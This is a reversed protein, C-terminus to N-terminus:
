QGSILISDEAGINRVVMSKIISLAAGAAAMAAAGFVPLLRDWALIDISPIAAALSVVFVQLFTWTAAEIAKKWFDSM